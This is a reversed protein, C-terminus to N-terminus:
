FGGSESAWCQKRFGCEVLDCYAREAAPWEDRDLADLYRAFLGRLKSEAEDRTYEQRVIRMPAKLYWLESIARDNGIAKM